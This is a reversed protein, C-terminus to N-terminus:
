NPPRPRTACRARWDERTVMCTTLEKTMSARVDRKMTNIFTSPPHGRSRHGHTPEWILLEGTKGGQRLCHRALGMRRFAFKDSVRPLYPKMLSTTKGTLILPQVYCGLISDMWHANLPSPSHGASVVVYYSKMQLIWCYFCLTQTKLRYVAM